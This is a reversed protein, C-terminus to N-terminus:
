PKFAEKAAEMLKEFINENNIAAKQLDKLMASTDHMKHLDGLM